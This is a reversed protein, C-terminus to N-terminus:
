PNLATMLALQLADANAATPATMESYCFTWHRQMGKQKLVFTSENDCKKYGNAVSGAVSDNGKPPQSEFQEVSWDGVEGTYTESPLEARTITVIRGVVTLSINAM